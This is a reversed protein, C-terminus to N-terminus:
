DCDNRIMGVEFKNPCTIYNLAFQYRIWEAANRPILGLLKLGFKLGLWKSDNRSWIYEYQYNLKSWDSTPNMGSWELTDIRIIDIVSQDFGFKLGLWKSDNRSWIYECQYNLKVFDWIPNMGSCESTDIRTSGIDYQGIGFKWAWYNQITGVESENKM